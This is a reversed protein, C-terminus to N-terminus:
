RVTSKLMQINNLVTGLNSISYRNDTEILNKFEEGALPVYLDKPM